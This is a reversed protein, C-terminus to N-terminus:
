TAGLLQWFTSGLKAIIRAPISIIITIVLNIPCHPPVKPSWAIAFFLKEKWTFRSKLMVLYTTPMRVALGADPYCVVDTSRHLFYLFM